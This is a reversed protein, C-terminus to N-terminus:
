NFYNTNKAQLHNILGDFDEKKIFRLYNRRKMLTYRFDWFGFDFVKWGLDTKHVFLKLDLDPVIKMDREVILIAKDDDLVNIKHLKLDTNLNSYLWEYAYRRFTNKLTKIIQVREIEPIKYFNEEGIITKLTMEPDAHQLFLGAPGREFAAPNARFYKRREHVEKSTLIDEAFTDEIEKIILEAGKDAGNEVSHGPQSFCLICLFVPIIYKKVM